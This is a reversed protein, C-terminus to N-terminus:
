DENTKVENYLVEFWKSFGSLERRKLPGDAILPIVHENKVTCPRQSLVIVRDSVSIAESIDHTVLIATQREAKIIKYV